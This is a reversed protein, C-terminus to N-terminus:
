GFIRKNIFNKRKFINKKWKSFLFIFFNIRLATDGFGTLGLFLVGRGM